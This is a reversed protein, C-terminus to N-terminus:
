NRTKQGNEQYLTARADHAMGEGNRCARELRGIAHDAVHGQEPM